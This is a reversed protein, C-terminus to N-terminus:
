IQLTAVLPMHDIRETTIGDNLKTEDVVVGLMEINSSTVINDLCATWSNDPYSSYTIKFGFAGGNAVNYGADILPKVIALYDAGEVDYNDTTNFDGCLIFTQFGALVSMITQMESTRKARDDWHLHTVMVNITVGHVTIVCTDYYLHSGDTFDRAIYSTIPYKSAICRGNAPSATPSDGLTEMIYPYGCEVLLSAATRGTKSFEKCYEELCVIDADDALLMGKQLAYYEADKDAPINDHKGDYWTGVNYTMVKLTRIRSYVQTGEKDFASDLETNIPNFASALENGDKGYIAM